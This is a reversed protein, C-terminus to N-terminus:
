HKQGPGGRSAGGGGGGGHFGSAAGPSVGRSEAGRASFTQTQHSSEGGGFIGGGGSPRSVVPASHPIPPAVAHVPAEVAHVPPAVAHAPAEVAHSSPVVAERPPQFARAPAPAEHHVPEAARAPAESRSPGSQRIVNPEHAPAAHEGGSRFPAPRVPARPAVAPRAYGRDGRIPAVSHASPRWVHTNPFSRRDNAPRNWWDHPRPHRRDWFIVNHHHWDWDHRWWLGIPLGIGFGCFIGPTFYIAGPDYEPVYIEDPNAPEIDIDGDDNVITEQPTSQLNGLSQAKARMRQVADMVDGQQAAFAQGLQTTWPLNDDLWKLVSPYHALAQVSPDLPQQAVDDPSMGQAVDRDALVIQDPFTAAATIEAILPDPYLAIPGVLQDLEDPSRAPAEDDQAFVAGGWISVVALGALVGRVLQRM